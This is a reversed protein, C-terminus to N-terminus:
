LAAEPLTLMHIVGTNDAYALTVRGLAEHGLLRCTRGLFTVLDGRQLPRKIRPEESPAAKALPKDRLYDWDPRDLVM